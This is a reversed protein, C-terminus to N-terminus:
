VKFEVGEYFRGIYWDVEFNKGWFYKIERVGM